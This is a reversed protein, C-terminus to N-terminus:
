IVMVIAIFISSIILIMSEMILYFKLVKWSVIFMLIIVAFLVSALTSLAAGTASYELTLFYSLPINIIIAVLYGYMKYKATNEELSLVNTYLIYLANFLFSLSLIVFIEVSFVIKENFIYIFLNPLLLLFAIYILFISVLFLRTEKKLLELSKYGETSYTKLLKPMYSKNLAIIAIQIAGALLFISSYNALDNISLLSTIYVKDILSNVVAFSSVPLIILSYKLIRKYLHFDFKSAQKFLNTIGWFKLAFLLSLIFNAVLLTNLYDTANEFLYIATIGCSFKTINILVFYVFYRYKDFSLRFSLLTVTLVYEFFLIFCIKLMENKYSIIKFLFHDDFLSILIFFASFILYGTFAVALSHVFLYSKNNGINRNFFLSFAAESSLSILPSLATLLALLLTLKGYEDIILIHSASPLLIFQMGKVFFDAILYIFAANFFFSKKLSNVFMLSM